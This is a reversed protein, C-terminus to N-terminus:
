TVQPAPPPEGGFALTAEAGAAHLLPLIEAVRAPPLRSRPGAVTLAGALPGGARFVPVSIGAIQPDREGDSHHYGRALVALSAADTGGTFAAIVRGGSGRNLPLVDGEQVSYRLAQRSEIRFLCMRQTGAPVYFAVSEGTAEALARMRPLLADAPAVTRRYRAGLEAAMPGLRFGGDPLREILGGSQLSAALRLITSKYLGTDRSLDALTVAARERGIALLIAIARDVSAAGQPAVKPTGSPAAPPPKEMVAPERLAM